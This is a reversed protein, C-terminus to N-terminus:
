SRAEIYAQIFAAAAEANIADGFGRLKLVRAPAGNALPFTGPEVPCWEAGSHDGKRRLIWDAGAWFGNVYGAGAIRSEGEAGPGWLHGQRREGPANGLGDTQGRSEAGQGSSARLTKGRVRGGDEREQFRPFATDGLRESQGREVVNRKRGSENGDIARRGGHAHALGISASGRSSVPGDEGCQGTEGWRQRDSHALRGVPRLQDSREVEQSRTGKQGPRRRGLGMEATDAVFWLRLRINPAGVSAAGFVTKGVSYHEAELNAQVLDLWGYSIAENSQEGFIVPPKRQRILQFWYPWLHRADDFGQGKGAPSFSPCPCSGTWVQKADPWGALRLSYSWVAIGAFFHCQSFGQLDKPHVDQIGREDVEGPAVVRAKILERIWAAKQADNENYYATM